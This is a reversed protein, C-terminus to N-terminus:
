FYWVSTNTTSVGIAGAKLAGIVDEKETILGGAIVPEGIESQIKSIIKPMVGPMIEIADPKLLHTSKITNRMSLSDIIFIRQIAVMELDKAIKVINNKTSIIGDPNINEHIYQLATADHSFGEILDVHIYVQKNNKRCSEVVDKLNFISGTLMFLIECPSTIALELNKIDKVAAIIPNDSLRDYFDQKM